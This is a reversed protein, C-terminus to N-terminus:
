HKAIFYVFGIKLFEPYDVEGDLFTSRKSLGLVTMRTELTIGLYPTVFQTIKLFLDRDWRNSKVQSRDRFFYRFEAGLEFITNQRFHTLTPRGLLSWGFAEVTTDSAKVHFLGFDGGITPTFFTSPTIKIFTQFEPQYGFYFYHDFPGANRTLFSEFGNKLKLYDTLFVEGFLLITTSTKFNLATNSGFEANGKKLFRQKLSLSDTSTITKNRSLFYTLGLEINSFKTDSFQNSNQRNDKFYYYVQANLAVNKNLFYNIGFSASAATQFETEYGNIVAKNGTFANFDVVPDRYWDFTFDTQLYPRFRNKLFYLRVFPTTTYNIFRITEGLKTRRLAFDIDAGIVLSNTFFYGTKTQLNNIFASNEGISEIATNGNILWSGKATQGFSIM